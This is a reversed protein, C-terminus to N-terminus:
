RRSKILEPDPASFLPEFLKAGDEISSREDVEHHLTGFIRVRESLARLVDERFDPETADWREVLVAGAITLQREQLGSITLLAHSICGMRLGVAIVVRLQALQAVDAFNQKRNLPVAVGGSGEAVIPGEIRDLVLKLDEAHVPPMGEALAASWPDAAKWFRALERHRLGALTGARQADGPTDEATGTQILKILTPEFGHDRLAIGLAAAVRTKGVDTDTGTVLYRHM